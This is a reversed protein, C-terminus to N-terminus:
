IYQVIVAAGKSMNALDKIEENDIRICGCSCRTGLLKQYRSLVGHIRYVDRRTKATKQLTVFFIRMKVAGMFNMSSGAPVVIM